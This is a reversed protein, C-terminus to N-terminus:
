GSSIAIATGMWMPQLIFIWETSSVREKGSGRWIEAPTRTSSPDRSSMPSGTGTRMRSACGWREKKARPAIGTSPFTYGSRQNSIQNEWMEIVRGTGAFNKGVIDIDGDGDIDGVRMNHSGTRSLVLSEFTGKRNLYVLVRKKQSTHMEATLIDLKMGTSTPWRSRIRGEFIKGIPHEVWTGTRPNGPIRVLCPGMGGCALFWTLRGDKNMDAVFVRTDPSWKTAISHSKWPTMKLSGPNELWSGGYVVDLDGDGDMDALAIGEGPREVVNHELWSEPSIQEWLVVKKKDCSVIDMKGDANM